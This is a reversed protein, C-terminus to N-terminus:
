RTLVAPAIRLPSRKPVFADACFLFGPVFGPSFGDEATVTSAQEPLFLLPGFGAPL